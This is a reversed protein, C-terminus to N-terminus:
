STHSQQLLHTVSSPSQPQLFEMIPRIKSERRQAQPDFTFEQELVMGVQRAAISGLMIILSGGESLTVLDRSNVM